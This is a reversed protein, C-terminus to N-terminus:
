SSSISEIADRLATWEYSGEYPNGDLFFSPTKAVGAALAERGQRNVVELHREDRMDEMFTEVDLGVALAHRELDDYGLSHQNEFLRDHMEWFRGQVGAAEAAVAARVSFPHVEDRALHRFAFRVGLDEFDHRARKLQFHARGCHPCEFEAYEVLTVRPEPAGLVHDDLTLPSITPSSTLVPDSM